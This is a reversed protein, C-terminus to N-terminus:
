DHDLRRRLDERRLDKIQSRTMKARQRHAEVSPPAETAVREVQPALARELMLNLKEVASQKNASQSRHEQATTVIYGDARLSRQVEDNQYITRKQEATLVRSEWLNFLARVKTEVKNVNQGGPGGSRATEFRLESDPISIKLSSNQPQHTRRQEFM